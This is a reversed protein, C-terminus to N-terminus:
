EAAARREDLFPELRVKGHKPAILLHNAPVPTWIDRAAELPESAIVVNGEDERYYLTNASEKPQAYRVAYLAEGDTLAATFRFVNPAGSLRIMEAIKGVTRTLAGVPDHEAGDGLIALFAAESDTTGIRSRYYADPILAEVKRRILDWDGLSGNHMFMFRGHIFPHCNPRTTPTSTAARVHAFFLHASIHRCLHKLNEDSWAPRVERYLGPEPHKDYWGLGFGDGQTAGLAEKAGISQRVLSHEPETVYRELPITRGRYAIWRCM